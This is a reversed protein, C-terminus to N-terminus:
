VFSYTQPSAESTNTFANDVLTYEIGKKDLKNALWNHGNCYFQARFPAWTPIRLFCLGLKEDIFYFYYHLCKATTPKLFSKKNKDDYCPKYASCTEMASIIHVLGPEENGRKKLVEKVIGEKRTNKNPIFEIQVHHERAIEEVDHKLQERITNTYKPYDFIRIHKATLYNSMGEPWCITHLNGQLLLRDYCSLVGYIQDKHQNIFTEMGTEKHFNLQSM